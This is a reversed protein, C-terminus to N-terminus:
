DSRVRFGLNVERKPTYWTVNGLASSVYAASRLKPDFAGVRLSDLVQARTPNDGDFFVQTESVEVACMCMGDVTTNCSGVSACDAIIRSVVSTDSWDVRFFTMTDERVMVDIGYAGLPQHVIAATGTRDIKVGSPAILTQGFAITTLAFPVLM